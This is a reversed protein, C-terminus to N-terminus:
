LLESINNRLHLNPVLGAQEADRYSNRASDFGIVWLIASLLAIIVYVQIRM